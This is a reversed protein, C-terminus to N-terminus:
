KARRELDRRILRELEDTLTIHGVGPVRAHIVGDDYCGYVVIRGQWEVMRITM